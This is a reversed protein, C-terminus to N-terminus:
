SCPRESDASLTSLNDYCGFTNFNRLIIVPLGFTEYYSKCLRDGAIKSAAYPSHGDLPHSEDMEDTQSSGYVESTSAFIIKKKFKRCAELVNITGKVNIDFTEQPIEISRDVHIQAALHFIMDAWEVYKEVEDYYRVDAYTAEQPAECPHYFNDIAIVEHGDKELSQHLHYGIFGAGGTILAKM